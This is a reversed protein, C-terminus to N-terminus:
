PLPPPPSHSPPTPLTPLHPLPHAGRSLGVPARACLKGRPLPRHLPGMVLEEGPPVYDFIERRFVFFGGNIWTDAGKVDEISTVTGVECRTVVQFSNNPRETRTAAVASGGCFDVSM